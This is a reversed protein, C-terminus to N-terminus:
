GQTTVAEIVGSNEIFQTAKLHLCFGREFFFLRRTCKSTNWFDLAPALSYRFLALLYAVFGLLLNISISELFFSPARRLDNL